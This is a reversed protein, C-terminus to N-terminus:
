QPSAPMTIPVITATTPRHAIHIGQYVSRVSRPSRLSLAPRYISLEHAPHTVISFQLIVIAFHLNHRSPVFACLCPPVSPISRPILRLEFSASTRDERRAETGGHRLAETGEGVIQM